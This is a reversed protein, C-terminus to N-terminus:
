SLAEVIKEATAKGIGAIATYDDAYKALQTYTHIGAADLAAHGPFDNSLKGKFPALDEAPASPEADFVQENSAVLKGGEYDFTKRTATGDEDAWTQIIQKLEAM